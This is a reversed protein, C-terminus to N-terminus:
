DFPHFFNNMKRAINNKHRRFIDVFDGYFIINKINSNYTTNINQIDYKNINGNYNEKLLKYIYMHHIDDITINENKIFYNTVTDYKKQIDSINMVMINIINQLPIQEIIEDYLDTYITMMNNENDFPLAIFEDVYINEVLDSIVINELNDIQNRGSRHYINCKEIMINTFDNQSRYFTDNIIKYKTSFLDPINNVDFNIINLNEGYKIFAMYTRDPIDFQGKAPNIINIKDYRLFQPMVYFVYKKSNVSIAIHLCEDMNINKIINEIHYLSKDLVTGNINNVQKVMKGQDMFLFSESDYNNNISQYIYKWNEYIFECYTNRNKDSYSTSGYLKFPRLHGGYQMMHKEKKNPKGFVVISSRGNDLEDLLMILKKILNNIESNHENSKNYIKAFEADNMWNFIVTYMDNAKGSIEWGILVNYLESFLSSRLDEINFNAIDIDYFTFGSKHGVLNGDNDIGYFDKYIFNYNQLMDSINDINNSIYLSSYRVDVKYIFYKTIFQYYTNYDIDSMAVIDRNIKCFYTIYNDLFSDIDNIKVINFKYLYIWSSILYYKGDNGKLIYFVHDPDIDVKVLNHKHFLKLLEDGTDDCDTISPNITVTNSPNKAGYVYKVIEVATSCRTKGYVNSCVTNRGLLSHLYDNYEGMRTKDINKSRKLYLYLLTDYHELLFDNINVM